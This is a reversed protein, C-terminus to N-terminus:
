EGWGDDGIVEDGTSFVHFGLFVEKLRKGIAEIALTMSISHEWVPRRMGDDDEIVYDLWVDEAYGRCEDWVRAEDEISRVEAEFLVNDNHDRCLLVVKSM